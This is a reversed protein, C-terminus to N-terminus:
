TRSPRAGFGGMPQLGAMDIDLLVPGDADVAQKFADRFDEVTKVPMWPLGIGQAVAAFDPTALDVGITRGEFSRAQIGRLVGYRADNFVCVIVPVQYQVATALEGLDLM